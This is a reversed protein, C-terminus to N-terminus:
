VMHFTDTELNSALPLSRWEEKWRGRTAPWLAKWVGAYQESGSLEDIDDELREGDRLRADGDIERVFLDNGHTDRPDRRCTWSRGMWALVGEFGPGMRQDNLVPVGGVRLRMVDLRPPLGAKASAHAALIEQFISQALSRDVAANIFVQRMAIAMAEQDEKEESPLPFPACADPGDAERYDTCELKLALTELNRMSGLTRYVGVEVHDGASRLMEISLQGIKPCSEQLQAVQHASLVFDEVRLVQLSDGHHELIAEFSTLGPGVIRLEVLPHLSTCLRTLMSEADVREEYESAIAPINLCTLRSLGDREALDALQGLVHLRIQTALHLSQLLSFDTHRIWSAFQVSSVAGIADIALSQLQGKTEPVDRWHSDSQPHLGRWELEGDWHPQIEGSPKLSNDWVCVHKLNPALGASLRLVAEQSYNACGTADRTSYTGVIQYLCPSTALMYETEETDQLADRHHLSRLDFDRVYLRCAPIQEHLVALICRPVQGKSSWVLEKLHLSSIFRALPRWYEDSRPETRPRWDRLPGSKSEPVLKWGPVYAADVEYDEHELPSDTHPTGLKLVRVCGRSGAEDLVCESEELRRHWRADDVDIAMCSFRERWSAARCGRSAAAFAFLSARRPENHALYECILGLVVQPLAEMTTQNAYLLPLTSVLRTSPAPPQDSTEQEQRSLLCPSALDQLGSVKRSARKVSGRRNLRSGVPICSAAACDVELCLRCAGRVHLITYGTLCSVRLCLSSSAFAGRSVHFKRRVEHRRETKVRPIRWGGVSIASTASKTM